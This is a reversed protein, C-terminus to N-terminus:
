LLLGGDAPLVENMSGSRFGEIDVCVYAYGLDKFRRVVGTRATAEVLRGIEELPVEIRALRGHHRVRFESFGLTRLFAEAERVMALKEVTIREGYPFRSSLCATAPRAWHELGLKRALARVAQKGMRAEVLPHRVGALDAATIGPRFDGLDDANAGDLVTAFGGAAALAQVHGFLEQKCVFCRDPPNEAFAPLDLENTAIVEHRVDLSRAFRRAVAVEDEVSTEGAATVALVREKGLEEAAVALVVSSDVGGSFAVAVSGYDGFLARLATEGPVTEM